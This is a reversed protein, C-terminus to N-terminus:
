RCGRYLNCLHEEVIRAVDPLTALSPPRKLRYIPVEKALQTCQLFHAAGAPQRWRTPYSHCVLDIVAAPPRLPEIVSADAAGLLYICRLPLPQGSFGDTVRCGRKEELPHLMHLSEVDYGLVGAVEPSLKLQPFGPFVSAPAAGVDVPTVDDTVVAHGRAHLAAAASSKGWGSDGLFAVAGGDVAVASAHLVLMGRQYLLIAMVNGVLYLRILREEMGPAPIITIERGGQILFYGVDRVFVTAQQPTVHAYWAEASREPPPSDANGWRITVDCAAEAAVLGPLSLVSHIGLGYAVYSFM